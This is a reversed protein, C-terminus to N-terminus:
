SERRRADREDQAVLYAGYALVAGAAVAAGVVTWVAIRIVHPTYTVIM